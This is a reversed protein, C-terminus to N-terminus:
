ETTLRTPKRREKKRHDGRSEVRTERRRRRDVSITALQQICAKSADGGATYGFGAQFGLLSAHRM